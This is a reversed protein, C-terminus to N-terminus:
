KMLYDVMQLVALAAETDIQAKRLTSMATCYARWAIVDALLPQSECWALCCRLVTGRREGGTREGGRPCSTTVIWAAGCRLCCRTESTRQTRACARRAPPQSPPSVEVVAQPPPVWLDQTYTGRRGSM